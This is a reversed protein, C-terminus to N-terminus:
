GKMAYAARGQALWDFPVPGTGLSRITDVAIQKDYPTLDGLGDPQILPRLDDRTIGLLRTIEDGNRANWGLTNMCGLLCRDVYGMHFDNAGQIAVILAARNANVDNEIKRPETM